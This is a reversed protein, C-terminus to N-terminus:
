SEEIEEELALLQDFVANGHQLFRNLMNRDSPVGEFDPLSSVTGSGEDLEYIALDAPAIMAHPPVIGALKNLLDPRRASTLKGHLYHAQVALGLYGIIYPSHTTLVLRNHPGQTNCDLLSQLMAWQSSPFLNQEPEEVVNVFATKNFSSSLFSLFERFQEQTLKPDDFFDEALMRFHEREKLNMLQQLNSQPKVTEALYHSVLHLPVLSQFGSSADTLRLKYGPEKLHLIDNLKDYELETNNIPLRIAIGLNAKAKDYVTLFEQLAGSSLRLERSDKVYAIFNREAPVYMVQPLQYEPYRPQPGDHAIDKVQLQGDRYIFTFADGKYEMETAPKGEASFYNELRHYALLTNQFYKKREFWKKDYGGRVLVKEMWCFTAYLKALTSKGSGQNGIFVTVRKFDIWGEHALMGERIPGFNKVRLQIM